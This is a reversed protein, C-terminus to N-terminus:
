RFVAYRHLREGLVGYIEEEYEVSLFAPEDETGGCSKKNAQVEPVAQGALVTRVEEGPYFAHILADIEYRYLDANVKAVLM